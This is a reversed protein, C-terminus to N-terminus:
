IFIPKTLVWFTSAASRAAEVKQTKTQKYCNGILRVVFSKKFTNSRLVKLFDKPEPKLAFRQLYLHRYSYNGFLRHLIDFYFYNVVFSINVLQDAIGAIEIL